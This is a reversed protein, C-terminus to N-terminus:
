KEKKYTVGKNIDKIDIINNVEKKNIMYNDLKSRWMKEEELARIKESWLYEQRLSLQEKEELLVKREEGLKSGDHEKLKKRIKLFDVTDILSTVVGYSSTIGLSLLQLVFDDLSFFLSVGVLIIVSSIGLRKCFVKKYIGKLREINYIENEKKYNDELKRKNENIDLKVDRLYNYIDAHKQKLENYKKDM